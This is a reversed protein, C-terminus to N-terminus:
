GSYSTPEFDPSAQTVGFMDATDDMLAHLEQTREPLALPSSAKLVETAANFFSWGTRPAFEEHRPEAWEELLRPLYTIPMVGREYAQVLLHDVDARTSLDVARYAEFRRDQAQWLDGVEGLAARIRGPLEDMAYRTNKRRMEVAGSFALNDCVFVHSGAVLHNSFSKDNSARIGLSITYEEDSGTDLSLVGFMREGEDGWLGWESSRIALGVRDLENRVAWLYDRYSVPHWTETPEPAEVACVEQLTASQAGAHLFLNSSM